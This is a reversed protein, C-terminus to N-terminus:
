VSDINPLFEAPLRSSTRSALMNVSSGCAQRQILNRLRAKRLLVCAADM